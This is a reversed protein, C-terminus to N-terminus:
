GIAFTNCLKTCGMGLACGSQSCLSAVTPPQLNSISKTKSIPAFIKSFANGMQSQLDECIILDLKLDRERERERGEGVWLQVPKIIIIQVNVQVPRGQEESCTDEPLQM